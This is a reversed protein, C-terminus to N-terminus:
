NLWESDYAARAIEAIIREIEKVEGKVRAIYVVIAFHKGNPLEVIGVDNVAGLTGKDNPGGMGTRHIVETGKPLLGKIRNAGTITEAMMKWLLEHSSQSLLKKDYFMELLSLMARPKCWNDFQKDWEQHMEEETAVIAMEKVGLQQIYKHVKGPGKLLRFLIDCGNNDSYTVTYELIERLTLEINGEPYKKVIPSWTDSMLDKRNIKIKKELSFKGQDVRKLVALALPFKFVSQMPFIGHVNYLLTDKTSLDMIAIGAQGDVKGALEGIKNRLLDKQGYVNQLFILCVFSFALRIKRM